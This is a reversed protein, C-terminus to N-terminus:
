NISEMFGILYGDPMFWESAGYRQMPFLDHIRKEEKGGGKITKIINLYPLKKNGYIPHRQGCAILDDRRKKYQRSRGIKVWGSCEMFYIVSDNDRNIYRKRHKEQHWMEWEKQNWFERESWDLKM